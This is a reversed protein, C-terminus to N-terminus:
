NKKQIDMLASQLDPFKFKYHNALLKQPIAKQGGLLMESMEGLLLKLAFAPVPAWSPRKLVKGLEQCFESMKVPQPATTNVPGAIADNELTFLIIGVVDDRHIWPFWQRGTGLPGGAFLKFPPIMKSLAGGGKELVIGIRLLATRVGFRKVAQAEKEWQDCTESLFGKGKSSDEVVDGSPVNGYYGVASANILIQPKHNAKEIAKVLVRTADVRSEVIVKKQKQSWRKDAISEGALNIVADVSTMGDAWEGLTKGNWKQYQLQHHNSKRDSRSLLILKHGKKILQSVLPKGVFGTGGAIMIKM